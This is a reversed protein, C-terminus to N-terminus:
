GSILAQLRRQAAQAEQGRTNLATLKANLERQVAPDSVQVQMGQITIAGRHQAVYDALEIAATLAGEAAPVTAQFARALGAVDREYATDFVPKLDAPQKLAARAAEATGFQKDLETRIGDMGRRLADFDARRDLLDQLSTIAGRGIAQNMPTSVRASLTDNFGTIIAYHQAYDGWSKAEEATPHLVHVGPKDIIRTQLYAIFAKRQAAEDDGCSSLLAAVMLAVAARRGPLETM